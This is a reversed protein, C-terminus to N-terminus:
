LPLVVRYISAYPVSTKVIENLSENSTLARYAWITEEHGVILVKKDLPVKQFAEKTRKIYKAMSEIEPNGSIWLDGWSKSATNLKPSIKAEYFGKIVKIKPNNGIGHFYQRILEGTQKSRLSQSVIILDPCSLKTFISKIQSIGEESLGKNDGRGHRMLECNYKTIDKKM